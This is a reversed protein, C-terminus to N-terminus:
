GELTVYLENEIVWQGTVKRWTALYTGAMTQDGDAAKWLADWRGSEAAREGADDLAVEATTRVYHVFAPDAFQGAFAEVVAQAGVVLSGDGTILKVDPHLFPKLRAAKHAAILKNTLKRRAIADAPSTM